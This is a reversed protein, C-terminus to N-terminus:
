IIDYVEIVGSSHYLSPTIMVSYGRGNESQWEVAARRPVACSSLLMMVAGGHMIAAANYVGNKMMDEVMERFGMALRRIFNETSEGGPPAPIKGATWLAFEETKELEKATKGEFAGFDYEAFQDIVTYETDPCLIGATQKCRLMPSTYLREIDPYSVTDRLARLEDVGEDCLPLDTRNGVYQGKINAETLGHRILHIKYTKM